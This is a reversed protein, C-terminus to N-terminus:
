VELDFYHYCGKALIYLVTEISYDEIESHDIIDEAIEVLKETTINVSCGLDSDYVMNLLHDYEENDGCTYWGHDICIQRLKSMSLSRTEKFKM